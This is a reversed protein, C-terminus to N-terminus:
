ASTASIRPVESSAALAFTYWPTFRSLSSIRVHGLIPDLLVQLPQGAAPLGGAPGLRPARPPARAGGGGV